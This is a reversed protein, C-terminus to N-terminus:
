QATPMPALMTQMGLGQINGGMVPGRAWFPPAQNHFPTQWMAPHVLPVQGQQKQQIAPTQHQLISLRQDLEKLIDARMAQLADLFTDPEKRKEPKTDADKRSTSQANRTDLRAPKRITGKIHVLKCDARLCEKKKLSNTCIM